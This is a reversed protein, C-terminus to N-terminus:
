LSFELRICNAYLQLVVQGTRIVSCNLALVFMPPVVILLEFPFLGIQWVIIPLSTGPIMGLRKFTPLVSVPLDEFVISFGAANIGAIQAAWTMAIIELCLQANSLIEIHEGTVEGLSKLVSDWSNLLGQMELTTWSSGSALCVPLFVTLFSTGCLFTTLNLEGEQTMLYITVGFRHVMCSIYFVIFLIHLMRRWRAALEFKKGDGNIQLPIFCLLTCLNTLANYYKKGGNFVLRGIMGESDILHSSRGTDKAPGIKHRQVGQRIGRKKSRSKKVM